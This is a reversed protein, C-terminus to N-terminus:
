SSPGAGPRGARGSPHRGPSQTGALVAYAAALLHSATHVTAGSGGASVAGIACALSLGLLAWHWLRIPRAAGDNARAASLGEMARIYPEPPTM